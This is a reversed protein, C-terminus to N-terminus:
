RQPALTRKLSGKEAGGSGGEDVGVGHELWGGGSADTPDDDRRPSRERQVITKEKPFARITSAIALNTAGIVCLSRLGFRDQISRQSDDLDYIGGYILATM